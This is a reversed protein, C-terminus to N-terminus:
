YGIGPGLGGWNMVVYALAWILVVIAGVVFWIPSSGRQYHGPGQFETEPREGEM